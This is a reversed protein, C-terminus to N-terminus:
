EVKFKSNADDVEVVETNERLVIRNGKIVDSLQYVKPYGTLIIKEESPLGELKESFAKRRIFKGDLMVKEIVKVDDYLAFYKLKKNYNELFIEGRRSTATLNQKKVLVDHTLDAKHTNMDLYLENSEFNMSDEYVRKRKILGKVQGLYKSRRSQPWFYAEDSDIYIWDGEVAHFTKTKVEGTLHVRDNKAEYVMKNSVAETDKTTLLVNRELTLVESKQDFVGSLGEYNVKQGNETFVLGKPNIFFSKEKSSNLTLEDSNLTFLPKNQKLVFYSVAKLYSDESNVRRGQKKAGQRYVGGDWNGTFSFAILVTSLILFTLVTITHKKELM